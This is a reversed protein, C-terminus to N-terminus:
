GASGRAPSSTELKLQTLLAQKQGHLITLLVSYHPVTHSHALVLLCGPQSVGSVGLFLDDDRFALTNEQSSQFCSCCKM